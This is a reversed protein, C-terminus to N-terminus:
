CVEPAFGLRKLISQFERARETPTGNGFPVLLIGPLSLQPAIELQGQPHDFIDTLARRGGAGSLADSITRSRYFRVNFNHRPKDYPYRPYGM